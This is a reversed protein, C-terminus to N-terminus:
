TKHISSQSQLADGLLRGSDDIIAAGTDDCSTEIGMVTTYYRQIAPWSLRTPKAQCVRIPIVPYPTFSFYSNLTKTINVCAIRFMPM